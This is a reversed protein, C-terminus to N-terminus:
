VRKKLRIPKWPGNPSSAAVTGESIRGATVEKALQEKSHPGSLKGDPTQIWWHGGSLTTESPTPIAGKLGPFPAWPGEEQEAWASGASYKGERANKLAADRDFPGCIKGNPLKIWVGNAVPEDVAAAAGSAGVPGAVSAIPRPQLKDLRALLEEKTLASQWPGDPSNSFQYEFTAEGGLVRDFLWMQQVPGFIDGRPPRIYVFDLTRTELPLLDLDAKLKATVAAVTAHLHIAWALMFLVLLGFAFLNGRLQNPLLEFSKLLSIAALVIASVAIGVVVAKLLATGYASQARQQRLEQESKYELLHFNCVANERGCEPCPNAGLRNKCRRCELWGSNFKLNRDHQWTNQAGCWPCNSFAVSDKHCFGCQLIVCPWRPLSLRRSFRGREEHGFTRGCVEERGGVNMGIVADTKGDDNLDLGTGLFAV